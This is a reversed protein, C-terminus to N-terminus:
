HLKKHKNEFLVVITKQEFTLSEFWARENPYQEDLRKNLDEIMAEYLNESYWKHIKEKTEPPLVDITVHSLIYLDAEDSPISCRNEFADILDKRRKELEPHQCSLKKLGDIIEQM